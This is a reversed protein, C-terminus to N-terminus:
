NKIMDLTLRAMLYCVTSEAGQNLNISSEGVGDQCGGTSDDYVVQNLSNKGLFWQFARHADKLYSEKGTIKGALALTQVMSATDVPQQDFYAKKGDRFYWGNQGIPAFVGGEFTVSSLFALSSEAVDLYKHDNTALYSYFLAEPLKSNSYTLSNEFWAWGDSFNLNYLSVLSDSLKRIKAVNESSPKAKNYFYLGLITFAIPRPATVKDIVKLGKNFIGEAADKLESPIGESAILFGLAWMARGHPDEIWNETKVSRDYDVYNYFSGDERQTHKIFGLYRKVLDVNGKSSNCHMCSVIMARANDDLTYGSSTDPNVNNAFQIMGFSDTLRMLHNLKVNPIRMGFRESFMIYKDFLNGYALAVNDWTMHRTHKYANEEMGKKLGPDALIKIIADAFSNSDNFDVLAGREPTILEKAHLFPTSVVARGAGVMYVLTGSTVQNPEKNSCICLDTAVLYQVIEKLSIYKNYFKVNKQLGLQKIKNEIFNRYQEGEQRRVEPHTEGIILYLLNPFKEVVKPLADIVHEYGKGPNVMGFSSLVLRDNYGLRSKEQASPVYKVIPIGHPIIKINSKVGYETRLIDEASKGMVVICDSKYALTQVVKKLREDPGPLVSHFTIVVPKEIVELFAILYSGYEGGFIGFEHQINVLKVKSARNIRKATDIYDQIDSDNIQFMVDSPCNYVSSNKNMAAIKSKVLPSFKKDMATTIDKTFTAIGCERPPFTGLYLVWSSDGKDVM